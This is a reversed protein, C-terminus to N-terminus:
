LPCLRCLRCLSLRSRTRYCDIRPLWRSVLRTASRPDACASQMEEVFVKPWVIAILESKELLQGPRSSLAILLTMARTGLAVPAGEKFLLQQRTHLVFKGFRIIQPAVALKVLDHVPSMLM